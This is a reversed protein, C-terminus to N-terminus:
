QMASNAIVLCAAHLGQSSGHPPIRYEKEPAPPDSFRQRKVRKMLYEINSIHHFYRDSGFEFQISVRGLELSQTCRLQRITIGQVRDGAIGERMALHAVFDAQLLSSVLLDAGAVMDGRLHRAGDRTLHSSSVLREPCLDLPIGRSAFCAMGVFAVFAQILWGPEDRGGQGILEPMIIPELRRLPYADQGQLSPHDHGVRAVIGMNSEDLLAGMDSRGLEPVILWTFLEIQEDGKLHLYSIGCWLLMGGDSPDIHPHAVQGYGSCRLSIPGEMRSLLDNRLGVMICSQSLTQLLFASTRRCSSQDHNASSLSPQLLVGIMDDAGADDRSVGMRQDAQLLQFVDSLARFPLSALFGADLLPSRVSGVRFPGKGFQVAHNGVFGEQM